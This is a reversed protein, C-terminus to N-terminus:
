SSWFIGLKSKACSSFDQLPPSQFFISREHNGVKHTSNPPWPIIYMSMITFYYYYGQFDMCVHAWTVVWAPKLPLGIQSWFPIVLYGLCSWFCIFYYGIHKVHQFPYRICSWASAHNLMCSFDDNNLADVVM